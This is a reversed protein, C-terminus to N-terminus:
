LIIVVNDYQSFFFVLRSIFFFIFRRVVRHVVSLQINSNGKLVFGQTLSSLSKRISEGSKMRRQNEGRSIKQFTTKEM